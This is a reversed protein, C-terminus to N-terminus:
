PRRTNVTPLVPMTCMNTPSPVNQIAKDCGNCFNHANYFSGKHYWDSLRHKKIEKSITSPDKCLFRAIDKFSTASSLAKEIYLRDQLSLHKHNGPILNSM